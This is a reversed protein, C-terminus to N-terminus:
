AVEKLEFNLAEAIRRSVEESKLHGHIILSVYTRSYGIKRALEAINSNNVLLITKVAIADMIEKKDNHKVGTIL